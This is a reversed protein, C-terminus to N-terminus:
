IALAVGGASRATKNPLIRAASTAMATDAIRLTPGSLAKQLKRRGGERSASGGEGLSRRVATAKASAPRRSEGYGQRLRDPRRLPPFSAWFSEFRTTCNFFLLRSARILERAGYPDGRVPRELDRRNTLLSSRTMPMGCDIGSRVM